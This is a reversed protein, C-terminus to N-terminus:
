WTGSVINPFIGNFEVGIYVGQRNITAQVVQYTFEALGPAGIVGLATVVMGGVPGLSVTGLGVLAGYMAAPGIQAASSLFAVVDDYTFYIKGGDIHMRSQYLDPQKPLYAFRVADLIAKSEEFTFGYNNILEDSTVSLILRGSDGNSFQFKDLLAKYKQMFQAQSDTLKNIKKNNQEMVVSSEQAHVVTPLVSGFLVFGVSYITMIKKM